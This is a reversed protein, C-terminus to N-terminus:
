LGKGKDKSTDMDHEEMMMDLEKQQKNYEKETDKISQEIQVRAKMTDRFNDLADQYAEDDHLLVEDSIEIDPDYYNKMALEHRLARSQNVGNADKIYYEKDDILSLVKDTNKPGLDNLCYYLGMDYDDYEELGDAIGQYDYWFTSTDNSNRHTNPNIIERSFDRQEEGIQQSAQIKNVQHPVVESVTYGAGTLITGAIICSILLKKVNIRVKRKRRRVEDERVNEVKDSYRTREGNLSKYRFQDYYDRNDM